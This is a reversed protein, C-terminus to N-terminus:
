ERHIDHRFISLICLEVPPDHHGVHVEGSTAAVPPHSKLPDGTPGGFHMEVSSHDVPDLSLSGGIRMGGDVYEPDPLDSLLLRAPPAHRPFRLFTWWLCM